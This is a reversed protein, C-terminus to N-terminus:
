ANRNIKSNSKLLNNQLSFREESLSAEHIFEYEQFDNERALEKMHKMIDKINIENRELDENEVIKTEKSVFEISEEKQEENKIERYFKLNFINSEM